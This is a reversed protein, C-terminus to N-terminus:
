ESWPSAVTLSEFNPASQAAVAIAAVPKAMGKAWDAPAASFALTTHEFIAAVVVILVAFPVPVVAVFSTRMAAVFTLRLM